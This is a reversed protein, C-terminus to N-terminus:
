EDLSFNVDEGFDDGFIKKQAELQDQMWKINEPDKTPDAKHQDAGKKALEELEKQEEREAWDLVEKEKAEEIKDGEQEASETAAKEREIRDWFEYM